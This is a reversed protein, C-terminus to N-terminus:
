AGLYARRMQEDNAMDAAHGHSTIRGTELVYVRDSVSLAMKANQEVLLLTVGSEHLSRIIHFVEKVFLPSLGMSPEDLIIMRPNSMMARGIALMQQEGGSLTGAEQDQREQLIPFRELIHALRERQQEADERNAYAGLSLNDRVSLSRFIRRGEPIHAVGAKLIEHAPKKTIKKGDFLVEGSKPRILGSITQLTTTKGAGNAGILSVVEGERVTLSLDQVAHIMGYFVNLKQVELLAM